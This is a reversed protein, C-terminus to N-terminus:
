LQMVRKLKPSTRLHIVAVWAPAPHINLIVACHILAGQYQFPGDVSGLTRGFLIEQSYGGAQMVNRLMQQVVGEPQEGHYYINDDSSWRYKIRTRGEGPLSELHIARADVRRAGDMLLAFAGEPHLAAQDIANALRTEDVTPFHERATGVHAPPLVLPPLVNTRDAAIAASYRKGYLALTICDSMQSMPLPIGAAAAADRAIRTFVKLASFQKPAPMAQVGM